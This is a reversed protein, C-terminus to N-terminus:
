LDKRGFKRLSLLLPILAWLALISYAIITGMAGAFSQKFVASTVGMLASIDMKLLTIIRVLDIPNLASLGVIIGELPYELLQFLVFMVLGDFLLAFYLWLLLSAGIGKTKEQIYVSAFLSISVFIVSLLVGTIIMTFGVITPAFILIPLGCGIVFAIILAIALGIFFSIWLSNRKIPQAILLEIFESSNYIYITSFITSVLPILILNLTLLSMLSKEPVDELMFLGLSFLLLFLTYAIVIKNRLIDVVVYKIVKKM